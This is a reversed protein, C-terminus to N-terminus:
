GALNTAVMKSCLIILIIRYLYKEMEMKFRIDLYFHFTILIFQQSGCIFNNVLIAM